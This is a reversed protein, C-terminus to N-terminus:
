KIEKKAAYTRLSYSPTLEAGPVVQGAKIAEAILELDPTYTVARAYFEKPLLEINIITVKPKSSSLKFRTIQGNLETTGLEKLAEKINNKLKKSILSATNAVKALSEVQAEYEAKISNCRAIIASYADCKLEQMITATCIREELEASLEGGSEIIASEIAQIERTIAILSTSLPQSGHGGGKLSTDKRAANEPNCPEDPLACDVLNPSCLDVSTKSKSSPLGNQSM